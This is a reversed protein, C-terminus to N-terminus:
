ENAPSILYLRDKTAMVLQGAYTLAPATALQDEFTYLVTRAGKTDIAAIENGYSILLQNGFTIIWGQQSYPGFSM